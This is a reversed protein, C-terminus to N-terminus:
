RCYIGKITKISLRKAQELILKRGEPKILEVSVNKTIHRLAEEYDVELVESLFKAVEEKDKIQRPIVAVSPALKNNVIPKGNRDYIIGRQGEVPINRSWLDYAKDIIEKSSVFQVFALRIVLLIVAFTFALMLFKLRKQMILIFDNMM